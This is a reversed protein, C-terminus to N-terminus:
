ETGQNEFCRPSSIVDSEGTEEVEDDGGFFDVGRLLNSSAFVVSLSTFPCARTGM